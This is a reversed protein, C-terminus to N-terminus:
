DIKRNEGMHIQPHKVEASPMNARMFACIRMSSFLFVRFASWGYSNLVLWPMALYGLNHCSSRGWKHPTGFLFLSKM